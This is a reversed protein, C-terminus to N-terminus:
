GAAMTNTACRPSTSDTAGSSAISGSKPRARRAAARAPTRTSAHARSMVGRPARAARRTGTRSHFPGRRGPVETERQAGAATAGLRPRRPTHDHGHQRHRRAAHVPRAARTHSIFVEGGANVRTMIRENLAALEAETWARGAPKARFCVVSFPAPALREFDPHADVWAAFTQALAIHARLRARVGDAGFYRLIMWLKLSRFRRGLQVGTDM